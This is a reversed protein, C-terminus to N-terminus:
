LEYRIPLSRCTFVPVDLNHMVAKASNQMALVEANHSDRQAAQAYGYFTETRFMIATNPLKERLYEVMDRLRTRYYAYAEWPLMDTLYQVTLHSARGEQELNERSSFRKRFFDLDWAGSASRPASADADHNEATQTCAGLLLLDPHSANRRAEPLYYKALRGEFSYYESGEGQVQGIQTGYHFWVEITFNLDQMFAILFTHSVTLPAATVKFHCVSLGHGVKRFTNRDAGLRTCM